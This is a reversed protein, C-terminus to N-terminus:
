AIIFLSRTSGFRDGALRRFLSELIERRLNPNQILMSSTM